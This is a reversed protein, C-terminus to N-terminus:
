TLELNAIWNRRACAAAAVCQLAYNPVAFSHGVLRQHLQHPPVHRSHSLRTRPHTLGTIAEGQRKKHANYAAWGADGQAPANATPDGWVQASHAESVPSAPCRVEFLQQEFAESFVELAISLGQM